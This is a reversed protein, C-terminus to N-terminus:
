CKTNRVCFLGQRHQLCTPLLLPLRGLEESLEQPEPIAVSAAQARPIGRSGLLVSM